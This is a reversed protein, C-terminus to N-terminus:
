IQTLIKDPHDKLINQIETSGKGNFKWTVDRRESGLMEMSLHATEGKNVTMTLYKPIFTAPFAFVVLSKGALHIFEYKLDSQTSASCVEM